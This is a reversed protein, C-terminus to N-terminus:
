KECSEYTNINQFLTHSVQIKSVWGVSNDYPSKVKYDNYGKQIIQARSHPLLAGVRRGKGQSSEKEWLYIKVNALIYQESQGYEKALYSSSHLAIFEQCEELKKNKAVNSIAEEWSMINPGFGNQGGANAFWYLYIESFFMDASSDLDKVSFYTYGDADKNYDLLQIIKTRGRILKSGTNDFKIKISKGVWNKNPLDSLDVYSYKELISSGDSTVKQKIPNQYLLSRHIYGIKEKKSIGSAELGVVLWWENKSPIVHVKQNSKLTKIITSSTSKGMRVNTKSHTYRIEGWDGGQCCYLVIIFLLAFTTKM